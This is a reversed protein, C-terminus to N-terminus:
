DASPRALDEALHSRRLRKQSFLWRLDRANDYMLQWHYYNVHELGAFMWLLTAWLIEWGRSWGALRFVIMLVAVLGLLVVNARKFAAYRTAFWPPLGNAKGLVIHLKLQWYLGGQVLIFCILAMTLAYLGWTPVSSVVLGLALIAPLFVVNFFEGTRLYRLRRVVTTRPM